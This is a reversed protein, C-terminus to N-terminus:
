PSQCRPASSSKDISGKFFAVAIKLSDQCSKDILCREGFTLNKEEANICLVLEGELKKFSAAPSILISHDAM